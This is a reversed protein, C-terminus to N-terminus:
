LIFTCSIVQNESPAFWPLFQMVPVRTNKASVSRTCIANKKGRCLETVPWLHLCEEKCRQQHHTNCYYVEVGHCCVPCIVCMEYAMNRLWCFDNRMCELMLGIQRRVVVACTFRTVDCQLDESLAMRSFLEGALEDSVNARHVVIEISSPHYLLIVSDEGDDSPFFRAVNHFFISKEPRCVNEGGWQFFQLVLRPFLGPPVHGNEFRLFLSPISASDVLKTIEDPPHSKLMSPVLYSNNKSSDSPWKCLFRFREMIAILSQITERNGLLPEWMHTLLEEDLLGERELKWWLDVFKKETCQYAPQVTIVKKFVDILWQTDLVVLKNLEPSDDFHILSRLDHLYNILTKFEKVKNINCVNSAIDSADKLSICKNGKERLANITKTFKLWKIPIAENIQPLERAVTLVKQRLRMVESCESESGSKTNDVFFVDVLHVGYPRGRLCGLIEYALDRPNRDDYPKDAHTCVLFIAPLKQPLVEPKPIVNNEEVHCRALSAVSRMWFDLYDLNTKLNLSEQYKKYVGQKVLPTATAQPNLSLDYVLCYIARATLFLPHTVYYVSQGAFDWLTSYIEERGDEQNGQLLTETVAAVEEPVGSTPHYIDEENQEETSSSIHAVETSVTLELNSTGRFNGLDLNRPPETASPQRPIETNESGLGYEIEETSTEFSTDESEEEFRDVIWRAIHNEFSLAFDSDQSSETAGTRWTEASVKCHSPDVDIGVTSDEEPDFCIGKLSKKLSTKGARDQGILM